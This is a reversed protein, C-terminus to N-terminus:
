GGLANSIAIGRVAPKWLNILNQLKSVKDVREHLRNSNVFKLEQLMQNQDFKISPVNKTMLQALTVSNM